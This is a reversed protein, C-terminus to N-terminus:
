YLGPIVRWTSKMYDRYEVPFHELMLQEEKPLRVLFLVGFGVIGATGAVWNPLLCAQAFAWLWFASYMPHRVWRYPGHTILQQREGTQLTVSWNTGLAKHTRRFLWLSTGFLALGAPAQWWAPLYNAFGPGDTVCYIFPVVGLGATSVALLVKESKRHVPAHKRVRKTRRSFPYRIVFWGIVGAAWALKMFVIM